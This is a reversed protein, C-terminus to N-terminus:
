AYRYAARARVPAPLVVARADCRRRLDRWGSGADACSARSPPFCGWRLSLSSLRTRGNDDDADPSFLPSGGRRLVDDPKPQCSPAQDSAAYRRAPAAARRRARCLSRRPSRVTLPRRHPSSRDRLLPHHGSSTPPLPWSLRPPVDIDGRQHQQQGVVRPPAADGSVTFPPCIRAPCPSLIAAAARHCGAWAVQSPAGAEARTSKAQESPANEAEKRALAEASIRPKTATTTRAWEPVVYPKKVLLQRWRCPKPHLVSAAAKFSRRPQIYCHSTKPPSSSAAAVLASRAAFLDANPRPTQAQLPAPKGPYTVPDSLLPRSLFTLKRQPPSSDCHRKSRGRADAVDSLTRKRKPTGESVIAGSARQSPSRWQTAQIYGPDVNEKELVVIEDDSETTEPATSARHHTQLRLSTPHRTQRNSHSAQRSAPPPRQHGKRLPSEHAEIIVPFRPGQNQYPALLTSLAARVGSDSLDLNDPAAGPADPQSVTAQM